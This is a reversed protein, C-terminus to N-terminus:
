LKELSWTDDTDIQGVQPSRYWLAETLIYQKDREDSYVPQLARKANDMFRAMAPPLKLSNTNTLFIERQKRLETWISMMMDARNKFPYNGKATQLYYEEAGSLPTRTSVFYEVRSLSYMICLGPWNTITGNANVICPTALVYLLCIMAKDHLSLGHIIPPPLAPTINAFDPGYLRYRRYFLDWDVVFYREGDETKSTFLFHIFKEVSKHLMPEVWEVIVPRGSKFLEMLEAIMAERTAFTSMNSIAGEATMDFRRHIHRETQNVYSVVYDSQAVHSTSPHLLRVTASEHTCEGFMTGPYTYRNVSDEGAWEPKSAILRDCIPTVALLRAFMAPLVVDIHRDETPPQIHHKTMRDTWLPRIIVYRDPKWDSATRTYTGVFFPKIEDANYKQVDSASIWKKGKQRSVLKAIPEFKHGLFTVLENRSHHVVVQYYHTREDGDKSFGVFFIRPWGDQFVLTASEKDFQKAFEWKRTMSRIPSLLVQLSTLLKTFAWDDYTEPEPWELDVVDSM